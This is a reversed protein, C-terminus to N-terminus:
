EAKKGNRKFVFAFLVEECEGVDKVNVIPRYGMINSDWKLLRDPDPLKLPPTLLRSLIFGVSFGLFLEIM